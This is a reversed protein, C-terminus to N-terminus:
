NVNFLNTSIHVQWHYVLAHSECKSDSFYYINIQILTM